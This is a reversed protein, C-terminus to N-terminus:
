MLSVVYNLYSEEVELKKEHCFCVTILYLVFPFDYTLFKAASNRSINKLCTKKVSIIYYDGILIKKM